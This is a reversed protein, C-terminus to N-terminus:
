GTTTTTTGSLDPNTVTVVNGSGAAVEPALEELTKNAKDKGLMLLVQAGNLSGDATPPTGSLPSVSGVGGLVRALSNAVDQAAPTDPDYFIVSEDLDPTTSSADTAAVVTFGAGAEIARSMSSATGGLGNANAVVVSAGEVVLPATTTTAPLTPVSEGPLSSETSSDDPADGSTQGAAPDPFDASEDGSESISRLILFGAVVAVVALVIALAGSVPAGGDSVRPSRRPIQGSGDPVDTM